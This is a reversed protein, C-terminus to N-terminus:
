APHHWVRVDLSTQHIDSSGKGQAGPTAEVDGPTPDQIFAGQFPGGRLGDFFLIVADRVGNVEAESVGRCDVQVRVGALKERKLTTYRTIRSPSSLVIAPLPTGVPRKRWYIRKSVVARLGPDGLMLETLDEEFAM